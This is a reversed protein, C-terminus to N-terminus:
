LVDSAPLQGSPQGTLQETLVSVVDGVRLQV